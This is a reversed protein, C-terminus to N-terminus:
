GGATMARLQDLSERILQPLDPPKRETVWRAFAVRFVAIGAEATLAAAPHDSGRRCLADALASAISSTCVL